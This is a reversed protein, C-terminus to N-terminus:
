LASRQVDTFLLINSRPNAIEDPISHVEDTNSLNGREGASWSWRSIAPAVEALAHSNRSRANLPVFSSMFGLKQRYETYPKSAEAPYISATKVPLHSKM